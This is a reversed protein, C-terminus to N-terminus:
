LFIGYWPWQWAIPYPVLSQPFSGSSSAAGVDGTTMWPHASAARQSGADARKSLIGQPRPWNLQLSEVSGRLLTLKREQRNGKCCIQWHTQFTQKSGRLVNYSSSFKWFRPLHNSAWLCLGPDSSSEILLTSLLSCPTDGLCIARRM